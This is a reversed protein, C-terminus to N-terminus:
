ATRQRKTAGEVAVSGAPLDDESVLSIESPEDSDIDDEDADEASGDQGADNDEAKSAQVACVQFQFGLMCPRQCAQNMQRAHTCSKHSCVHCVYCCVDVPLLGSRVEPQASGHGNAQAGSDQSSKDPDFDDDQMRDRHAMMM